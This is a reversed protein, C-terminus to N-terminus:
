ADRGALVTPRPWPLVRAGHGGISVTEGDREREVPLYALCLSGFRPSDVVSTVTCKENEGDVTEGRAVPGECALLALRRNLRGRTVAREIVEQGVYCGKSFHIAWELRAEIAIRSDDVDVGYRATGSEVRLIEFAATGMPVAGAEVAADWVRLPDACRLEVVPVRLDGRAYATAATGAFEAEACWWGTKSAASSGGLRELVRSVGPGVLAFRDHSESQGPELEVDDAVLFRGARELTADLQELDCVIELSEGRDYLAALSEVRGQATLFLTAQGAGRQLSRVDSTMQGHLYDVRESGEVVIRTRAPLPMLSVGTTAAEYEARVDGFDLPSLLGAYEALETASGEIRETLAGFKV